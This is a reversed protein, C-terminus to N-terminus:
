GSGGFIADTEHRAAVSMARDRAREEPYAITETYRWGCPCSPLYVPVRNVGYADTWIDYQVVIAQPEHTAM